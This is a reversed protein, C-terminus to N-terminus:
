AMSAAIAASWEALMAGFAPDAYTDLVSPDNGLLSMDYSVKVATRDAAADVCWM